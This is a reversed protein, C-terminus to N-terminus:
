RAQCTVKSPPTNTCAIGEAMGSSLFACANDTATREAEERDVGSATRCQTRGGFEMCVECSVQALSTLSYVIYVIALVVGIVAFLIGKKAM